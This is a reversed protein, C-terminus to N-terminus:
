RMELGGMLVLWGVLCLFWLHGVFDGVVGGEGGATGVCLDLEEFGEVCGAVGLAFM